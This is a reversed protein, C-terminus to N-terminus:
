TPHIAIAGLQNPFCGTPTTFTQPNTSIVAPTLGTAPALRGNSNFGTTAVPALLIPNPAGLVTHTAASITVVRGERQDDQGEQVSTKGARLQAFFLAVFITEDTDDADGDNTISIARPATGFPSLDITFLISPPTSATNFVMLDNSSSDAVYLRTGNPSLAVAMPETGVPFQSIVKFTTLDVVSVTGDLSNAVYAKTGDPHLAVSNPDRGVTIEKPKGRLNGAATFNFVSISNAEPNVNVLLRADETLAIPSSQSPGTSPLAFVDPLFACCITYTLALFSTGWSRGCRM